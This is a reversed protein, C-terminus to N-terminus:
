KLYNGDEDRRCVSLIEKLNELNLIRKLLFTIELNKSNIM